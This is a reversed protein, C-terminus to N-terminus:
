LILLINDGLEVELRRSKAFVTVCGAARDRQLLQADQLIYEKVSLFNRCHGVYDTVAAAESTVVTRHSLFTCMIRM